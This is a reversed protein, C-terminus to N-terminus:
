GAGGRADVARTQVLQVRNRMMVFPAVALAAGDLGFRTPYPFTVLDFTRVATVPGSDTLRDHLARAARRVATLRGGATPEAWAADLEPLRTLDSAGDSAAPSPLDASTRM